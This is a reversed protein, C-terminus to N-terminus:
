MENKVVEKGALLLKERARKLRTRVTNVNTKEAQAIEAYSLGEIERLIVCSRQEPNLSKLFVNIDDSNMTGGDKRNVSSEVEVYENYEKIRNEERARKRLVNVASNFAIRYIWTKLSSEERYYKLNRHINLFAEQTVEEADERNNVMRYSVNYVFGSYAKYIAEFSGM